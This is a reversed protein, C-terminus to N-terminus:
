QRSRVPWVSYLSSKNLYITVEGIDFLVGHAYRGNARLTTSSWTGDEFVGVFPHGAPLAPGSKGFDVLSHLENINPLRWDGPTSGDTLGCTGSALTNASNLASAWTQAGFCNAEQLWILGTLNDSVTGDVNDTFRPAASIGAQVDGDQGTRACNIPSGASDWCQTQGTAPVPAPALYCDSDDLECEATCVLDGGDFGESRCTKGRFDPDTSADGPDCKESPEAVGNGCVKKPLASPSGSMLTWLVVVVTAVALLASWIVRTELMDRKM